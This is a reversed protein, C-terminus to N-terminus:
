LSLHPGDCWWQHNAGVVGWPLGVPSWHSQPISLRHYAKSVMGMCLGFCASAKWCMDTLNRFHRRSGVYLVQRSEVYVFDIVNHEGNQCM